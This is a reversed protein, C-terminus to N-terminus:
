GKLKQYVERLSEENGVNGPFIIYPFHPAMVCPVSPIIQGLVRASTIGLGKTLIDHSTIGGKGVLYSPTFPLRYVIDVLFDSVQQGLRQRQDADDLRIEQRSTYVVPTLGMEAVQRITELTESMLLAADDLIRQVDVEIACTGEAQLLQELQQTTKKVHSGVIFCGPNLPTLPSPQPSLASPQPTLASPQPTLISRDLLPIDSIGSLAKPLSSSSRIVIASPQHKLSSPHLRLASTLHRAYRYLEDYSEANVIEYDDPNAGKEKIYETLISTHYAFVNDRAFETQSVPILQKGDRMYHIGEITVRGAEIFAPCFPTKEAVTYGHEVLCQRMVDTELPFHGRLCSDSRSVIILHYGYDQNVKIVMEMAERTVRAAEERTMARTNTLIYFFPESDEFGLRVSEEDWRTILLCGHVTQIGTPDDDLVILKWKGTEMGGLNPPQPDSCTSLASGTSKIKEIYMRIREIVTEINKDVEENKFRLVHIKNYKLFETRESDKQKAEPTNHVEGDLEICLRLEPCYFDLVYPGFGHQQRFKYGDVQRKCLHKWLKVEMPTRTKRLLQRYEKNGPHNSYNM